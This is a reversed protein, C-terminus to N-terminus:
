TSILAKFDSEVIPASMYGYSDLIYQRRDADTKRRSQDLVAITTGSQRMRPPDICCQADFASCYLAGLRLRDVNDGFENVLLQCGEPGAFIVADIVPYKRLDPEYYYHCTKVEIRNPLTKGAKALSLEVSGLFRKKWADFVFRWDGHLASIFLISGTLNTGNSGNLQQAAKRTIKSLASWPEVTRTLTGRGRTSIATYDSQADKSKAEVVYKEDGNVVLLDARKEYAVTSEAIMEVSFGLASFLERAYEKSEETSM